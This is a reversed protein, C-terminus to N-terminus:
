SWISSCINPTFLSPSQLPVFGGHCAAAGGEVRVGDREILHRRDILGQGADLLEGGAAQTQALGHEFQHDGATTIDGGHHVQPATGVSGLPEGEQPALGRAATLAAVLPPRVRLDVVAEGPRLGTWPRSRRQRWSWRRWVWWPQARTAPVPLRGQHRGPVGVVGVLAVLAVLPGM